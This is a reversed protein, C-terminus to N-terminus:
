SGEERAAAEPLAHLPCALVDLVRSAGSPELRERKRGRPAPLHTYPSTHRLQVVREAEFAGPPGVNIVSRLVQATSKAMRIQPTSGAPSRCLQQVLDVHTCWACANLDTNGSYFLRTLGWALVAEESFIPILVAFEKEGLRYVHRRATLRKVLDLPTGFAEGTELCFVLTGLGVLSRFSTPASNPDISRHM